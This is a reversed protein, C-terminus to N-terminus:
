NDKPIKLVVSRGPVLVYGNSRIEAVSVSRCFDPIDSYDGTDKANKWTGYTETVRAIDGDELARHTPSLMHGLGRVDVCLIPAGRQRGRALLWLCSPRQTSFFLQGPLAVICDVLDADILVKRIEREARQISSMSENALVLGAHGSPALHGICHQVWAFNANRRPPLGFHWRKDSTLSEKGWEYGNFPPHALVIDAELGAHRDDHFSDAQAVIGDIGRIALNM